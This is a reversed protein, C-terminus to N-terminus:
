RRQMSHNKIWGHQTQVMGGNNNTKLENALNAYPLLTFGFTSGENEKSSAWIHGKHATVISKSLFLGLGTGGIQSQNRHNRSFKTFLHPMVTTPIGVGHDQVTTEILGESNLKSIVTIDRSTEPSYKIANDILNTIVESITLRDLAVLPLEPEMRLEIQKGQVSARGRLNDIVEPLVTNWNGEALNLSLQNQNIRAVNLINSIFSALGQASSDMKKLYDIAEPSANTGLDEDFAEIYGRLITLPTRLEHVAMAIFSVAMSEEGYVDTHDYFTIMTEIGSASHKNFSIAIDFYGLTGDNLSSLEVKQWTQLSTVSTDQAGNLWQEVSTEADTQHLFTFYQNFAEGVISKTKFTELARNNAVVIKGTEDLGLTAVPLQDFLAAPITESTVLNSSSTVQASTAYDYVQRALNVALEKGWTLEDMNPAAVLHEGPSVHLIAEAIYRTPKSIAKGLIMGFFLSMIVASVLLAITMILIDNSVFTYVLWNIGALAFGSAGFWIILREQVKGIFHDIYGNDM